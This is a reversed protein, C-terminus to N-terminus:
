IAGGDDMAIAGNGDMECRSGGYWAVMLIGCHGEEAEELLAGGVILQGLILHSQRSITVVNLAWDAIAFYKVM